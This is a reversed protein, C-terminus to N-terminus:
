RQHQPHSLVLALVEEGAVGQGQGAGGVADDVELFAIDGVERGLAVADDVTRTGGDLAFHAGDGGLRGVGLEPGVPM